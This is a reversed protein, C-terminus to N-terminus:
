PCRKGSEAQLGLSRVQETALAVAGNNGLALGRLEQVWSERGNKFQLFRCPGM